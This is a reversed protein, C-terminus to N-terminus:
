PFAFGLDPADVLEAMGAYHNRYTLHNIQYNLGRKAGTPVL